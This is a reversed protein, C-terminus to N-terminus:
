GAIAGARNDRWAQEFCEVLRRERDTTPGQAVRPGPEVVVRMGDRADVLLGQDLMAANMMLETVNKSDRVVVARPCYAAVLSAERMLERAPRGHFIAGQLTLESVGDSPPTRRSGVAWFLAGGFDIPGIVEGSWGLSAAASAVAGPVQPLM